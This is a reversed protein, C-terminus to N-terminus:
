DIGPFWPRGIGQRFPWPISILIILLALLFFTLVRRHKSVDAIAKRAQARGVHILIIAILMGAIHEVAWFRATRSKMIASFSNDQLSPLGLPSVYWQYLGIILMIDATILLFLGVRRDGANFPRRGATLHRLVAVLLLLLIVWRLVSHLHLLGTNM